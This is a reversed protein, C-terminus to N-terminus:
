HIGCVLAVVALLLSITQGVVMLSQLQFFRVLFKAAYLPDTAGKVFSRTMISRWPWWFPELLENFFTQRDFTEHDWIIEGMKELSKRQASLGAEVAVALNKQVSGFLVSVVFAGLSRRLALTDLHPAVSSLNAIILTFAAASGALLWESFRDVLPSGQLTGLYCAELIKQAKTLGRWDRANM